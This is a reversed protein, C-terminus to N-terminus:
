VKDGVEGPWAMDPGDTWRWGDCRATSSALYWELIIASGELGEACNRVCWCGLLNGLRRYGVLILVYLEGEEDDEFM